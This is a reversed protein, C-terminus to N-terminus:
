FKRKLTIRWERGVGPLAAVNEYTPDSNPTFYLKDFLNDINASITYPGYQYFGSLNALWYDPYVIPDEIVTATKSVHTGGATVGFRGWDYMDSTYTAYLSNVSHPIILDAYNGARGPLSSITAAYSGGYGDVGSVGQASPPIDVFSSDPGKVETHQIDGAYTFSINKTALWRMEFEVGKSITGQISPTGLGQV